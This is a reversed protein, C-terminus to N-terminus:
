KEGKILAILYEQDWSAGQIIVPGFDRILKIIEAERWAMGAKFGQTYQTEM